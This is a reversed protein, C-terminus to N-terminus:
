AILSHAHQPQFGALLALRYSHAPLHRYREQTANAQGVDGGSWMSRLTELLTAGSRDGMEKLAQGEDLTVFAATKTRKKVQRKKGDIEETTLELYQEILGEGSGISN